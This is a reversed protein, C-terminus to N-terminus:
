QYSLFSFLKARFTKLGEHQFSKKENTSNYYM